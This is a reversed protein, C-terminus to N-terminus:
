SLQFHLCCVPSVTLSPTQSSPGPWCRRLAPAPDDESTQEEKAEIFHLCFGQPKHLSPANISIYVVQAPISGGDACFVDEILWSKDLQWSKQKKRDCM